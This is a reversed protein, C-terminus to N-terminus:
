ASCVQTLLWSRQSPTAHVKQPSLTSWSRLSQLCTRCHKSKISPEDGSVIFGLSSCSQRRGHLATPELALKWFRGLLLAELDLVQNNALAVLADKTKMAAEARSNFYAKGLGVVVQNVDNAVTKLDAVDEESPVFHFM